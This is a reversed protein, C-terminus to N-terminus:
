DTSGLRKPLGRASRWHAIVHAALALCAACLAGVVGLICFFGIKSAIPDAGAYGIATFSTTLAFGFVSAVAIARRRRAIAVGIGISALGWPVLSLWSGVFVVKAGLWGLLVGAAVAGLSWWALSVGSADRNRENM